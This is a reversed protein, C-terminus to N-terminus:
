RALMVRNRGSQKADYVAADALVVLDPPRTVLPHPFSVVGISVTVTFTTEGRRIPVASVTERLRDVALRAGEIPTEPLILAFEEGGYRAVTDCRRLSRRCVTAVSALAADGAVHGHTDNVHKFHDIDLMCLSLPRDYRRARLFEEELTTDFHRRNGVGTLPDTLSLRTLEANAATLKAQLNRIKVHISVRAALETVDCPKTVYDSAGRTLAEIKRPMDEAGTLMIVPIPEFDPEAAKLRLFAIGDCRPMNLDCIVLDVPQEKMVRLAQLGDSATLTDGAIQTAKLLEAIAFRGSESDDVVLVTPRRETAGADGGPTQGADNVMSIDM